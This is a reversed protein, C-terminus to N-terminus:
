KVAKLKKWYLKMSASIKDKQRKRAAPTIEKWKKKAKDSMMKKYEPSKKQITQSLRGLAQANKNVM